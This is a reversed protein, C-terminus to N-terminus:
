HKTVNKIGGLRNFKIVPLIFVSINSEIQLNNNSFDYLINYLSNLLYIFTSM